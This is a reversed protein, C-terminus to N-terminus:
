RLKTVWVGAAEFLCGTEQSSEHCLYVVLPAIKDPSLLELMETTFSDKNIRSSAVPAITNVKINYKEGEKALAQTLGHLGFKSAAYSGQGFNGYIGSGSSTNIIRGYNNDKMHKWAARCVSFSGKIHVKMMLDWEESKMRAFTGENYIGANNIIIDVRGFSEIATRIIKDGYEVSDYSAVAQIGLEKLEKVIDDAYRTSSGEGTISSGFDNIVLKAGRKAFELAYERGLASGAGTIVVVRNNFNLNETM